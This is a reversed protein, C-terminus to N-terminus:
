IGTRGTGDLARQGSREPCGTQAVKIRERGAQDSKSRKECVSPGPPGAAARNAGRIPLGPWEPDAIPEYNRRIRMTMLAFLDHRDIDLITLAPSTAAPITAAPSTVPPATAEPDVGTAGAATGAAAGAAALKSGSDTVKTESL